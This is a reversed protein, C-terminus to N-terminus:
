KWATEIKLINEENKAEEMAEVCIEQVKEEYNQLELEFVKALNMTKLNVEGTEKGTEEMIRKWHREQVSPHKLQEILPLSDKFGAITDKLKNFPSMSECGPLKTSLKKIDKEYKEAAQILSNADLKAWSMVAFDKM